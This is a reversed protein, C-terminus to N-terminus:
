AKVRARKSPREHPAGTGGGQGGKVSRRGGRNGQGQRSGTKATSDRADESAMARKTTAERGIDPPNNEKGIARLVAAKTTPIVPRGSRRLSNSSEAGTAAISPRPAAAQTDAVPPHPAAAQASEVVQSTVSVGGGLAPAALATSVPTPSALPAVSAHTTTGCASRGSPNENCPAPNHHFLALDAALDAANRPTCLTSASTPLTSASTSLGHHQNHNATVSLQDSTVRSQTADRSIELNAVPDNAMPFVPPQPPANASSQPTTDQKDISKGFISGLSPSDHFLPPAHFLGFSGDPSLSLEPDLTGDFFPNGTLNGTLGTDEPMPLPPLFHAAVPMAQATPEWPLLDSSPPSPISNLSPLHTEHPSPGFDSARPIETINSGSSPTAKALSPLANTRIHTAGASCWGYVTKLYDGFPVIM